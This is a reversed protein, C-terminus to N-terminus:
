PEAPQPVPHSRAEWARDWGLRKATEVNVTGDARYTGNQILRRKQEPSLYLPLTADASKPM